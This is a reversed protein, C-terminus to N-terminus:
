GFWKLSYFTTYFLGLRFAFVILLAHWFTLALAKTFTVAKGGGYVARLAFYQYIILPVYIFSALAFESFLATVWPQAAPALSLLNRAAIAMILFLLKIPGIMFLLLAAFMHISYLLHEGYNHGRYFPLMGVAFIPIVVAFMAKKQAQLRENFRTTYAELSEDRRALESAIMADTEGVGPVFAYESLKYQFFNTAFLFFVVSIALYVQIPKLYPRRRGAIYDATLRGPWRFLTYVTRYVRGGARRLGESEPELGPVLEEALGRFFRNLSLEDPQM